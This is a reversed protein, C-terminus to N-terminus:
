NIKIGKGRIVKKPLRDWVTRSPKWEPFADRLHRKIWARYIRAGKNEKNKPKPQSGIYAYNISDTIELKRVIRDVRKCENNYNLIHVIQRIDM